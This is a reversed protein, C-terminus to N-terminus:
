ASPCPPPPEAARRRRRRVIFTRNTRTDVFGPRETSMVLVHEEQGIEAMRRATAAAAEQTWRWDITGFPFNGPTRRERIGFYAGPDMRCPNAPDAGGCDAKNRNVFVARGTLPGM